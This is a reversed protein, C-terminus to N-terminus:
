LGFRAADFRQRADEPGEIEAVVARRGYLRLLLELPEGTLVVSPEGPRAVITEGTDSRRLVVGVPSSRALLRAMRAVRSWLFDQEAPLLHRPEWGPRARRVDEHHIVYEVPNVLGQVGPLRFPSYIPPGTRVDRVLDVWPRRDVKAQVSATYGSLAPVVIGVAADPRSERVVLHAALDRTLWGECLTPADPGVEILLDCLDRRETRAVDIAKM